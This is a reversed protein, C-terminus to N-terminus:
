ALAIVSWLNVYFDKADHKNQHVFPNKISNFSSLSFSLEVSFFTSKNWNNRCNETEKKENTWRRFHPKKIKNDTIIIRNNFIRLGCWHSLSFRNNDWHNIFSDCNQTMKIHIKVWFHPRKSKNYKKKIYNKKEERAM